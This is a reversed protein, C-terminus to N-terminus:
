KFLAKISGWTRKLGSINGHTVDIAKSYSVSGDNDVIKIRYKYITSSFTKYATEDTFTYSAENKPAVTAIEMFNGNLSKREVIYQKLNTENRVEWKIVINGNESKGTFNLIEVGAFLQIFFIMSFLAIKVTKNKM